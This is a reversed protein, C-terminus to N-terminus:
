FRLGVAVSWDDGGGSDFNRSYKAQAYPKLFSLDLRVGGIANGLLSTDSGGFDTDVYGLGAGVGVYPAVASFKGLDFTLDLNASGVTANDIDYFYEVNPNLTAKGMGIALEAGVFNLDGENTRGARVGFDAASAVPAIALLTLTLVALIRFQKM